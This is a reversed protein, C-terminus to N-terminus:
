SNIFFHCTLAGRQTDRIIQFYSLSLTFSHWHVWFICYVEFCLFKKSSSKEDMKQPLSWPSTDSPPGRANQGPRARTNRTESSPSGIAEIMRKKMREKMWIVSGSTWVTLTMMATRPVSVDAFPFILEFSWVKSLILSDSKLSFLLPWLIWMPM